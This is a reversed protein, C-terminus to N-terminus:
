GCRYKFQEPLNVKIQDQKIQTLFLNAQTPLAQIYLIFSVFNKSKQEMSQYESASLQDEPDQAYYPVQTIDRYNRSWNNIFM